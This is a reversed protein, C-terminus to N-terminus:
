RVLVGPFQGKEYCEKYWALIAPERPVRLFNLAMTVSDVIDDHRTSPYNSMEDLFADRWSAEKPLFVKGAEVTSTCAIARTMKDTDPKVPKIPLTTSAQLDQILSQGSAADEILVTSPAWEAALSILKRKLDPYELRERLMHLLYFANTTIGWITVVSYDSFVGTKYASDLSFIIRSFEKPRETFTQWWDTHFVGGEQAQPRQQYLSTFSASGIEQRIKELVEIPYREPWLAEGVKRGLIDNEEAIAPLNVVTWDEPRERLLRGGLDDLHWRTQILVISAGPMLRTYGVDAYWSHLNRRIIESDAEARDKLL